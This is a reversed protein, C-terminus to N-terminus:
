KKNLSIGRILDYGGQNMTNSYQNKFDTKQKQSLVPSYEEMATRFLNSETVVKEPIKNEIHGRLARLTSEIFEQAMAKDM